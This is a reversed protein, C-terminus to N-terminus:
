LTPKPKSAAELVKQHRVCYPAWPMADLRKPDIPAGDILCRGYTGSEIRRLAAQVEQLTTADLEAETFDESESEDAVSAGVADAAYHVFAQHYEALGHRTAGNTDTFPIQTSATMPAPRAVFPVVLQAAESSGVKPPDSLGLVQNGGDFRIYYNRPYAVPSTSARWGADYRNLWLEDRREFDFGAMQVTRGSSGSSTHHYEVLGQESIRTFEWITSLVCETTNCSVTITSRRQFM